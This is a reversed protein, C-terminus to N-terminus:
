KTGTVLGIQLERVWKLRGEKFIEGGADMDNGGKLLLTRVIVKDSMADQHHYIHSTCNGCYYCRVDKGSAGKYTYCKVEAKGSTIQLDSHPIIQNCSYPGGGLRKCTDCHCLVHEATELRATWKIRECHCHGAHVKEDQPPASDPRKAPSGFLQGDIIDIVVSDEILSGADKSFKLHVPEKTLYYDLDQQNDFQLVFGHTM